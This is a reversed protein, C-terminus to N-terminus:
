IPECQLHEIEKKILGSIRHKILYIKGRGINLAKAIRPVPWKQVVYLDFVQYHHPNVKRKVREIAVELINKEWEEDWAAELPQGAPDAIREVTATGTSTERPAVLKVGKQRRRLQDSIRWQTLRLLWAKFSGNKADYEFTRMSKCVSLITEQVVDQAEADSLGAKISTHYILKWYTEFFDRWSDQDDWDKLRSLLSQRTPILEQGEKMGAPM